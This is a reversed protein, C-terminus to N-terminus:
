KMESIKHVEKSFKLNINFLTIFYSILFLSIEGDNSDLLSNSVDAGRAVETIKLQGSADSVRVILHSIEFTYRMYNM